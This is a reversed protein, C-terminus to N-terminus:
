SASEKMMRMKSKHIIVAGMMAIIGGILSLVLPIEGVLIGILFTFIPVMYLYGAAHSVDIVALVKAWIYYSIAGPFIGLYVVMLTSSLPARAVEKLMEPLFFLMAVTGSWIALTVVDVIAHKKLLSKQLLNYFVAAFTALLVYFVGVGNHSNDQKSYAIIFIGIFSIVVGLWGLRSLREKFFFISLLVLLVPGQGVLFSAVAASTTLEGYNLAVNYISFGLLGMLVIKLLERPQFKSQTQHHRIFFPILTASAVLYRLLALPGPQYSSLTLRIGVYASGWLILAIYLLLYTTFQKKHM